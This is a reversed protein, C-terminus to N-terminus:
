CFYSHNQRSIRSCEGRFRRQMVTPLDEGEEEDSSDFGDDDDDAVNGDVHQSSTGTNLLELAKELPQDVSSIDGASHINDRLGEKQKGKGKQDPKTTNAKSQQIVPPARSFYLALPSDASVVPGNVGKSTQKLKVQLAEVFQLLYTPLDQTPDPRIIFHSMDALGSQKLKM